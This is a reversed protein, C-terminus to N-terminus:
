HIPALVPTPKTRSLYGSKKWIRNGIAWNSNIKEWPAWGRTLAHSIM